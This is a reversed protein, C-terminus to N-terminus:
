AKGQIWGQAASPVAASLRRTRGTATGLPQTWHSHGTATGLFAQMNLDFFRGIKTWVDLSIRAASSQILRCLGSGSYEATTGAEDRADLHKHQCSHPCTYTHLCTHQMMEHMYM